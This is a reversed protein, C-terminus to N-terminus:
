FKLRLKSSKLQWYFACLTRASGDAGNMTVLGTMGFRIRGFVLVGRCQEVGVPVMGERIGLKEAAIGLRNGLRDFGM